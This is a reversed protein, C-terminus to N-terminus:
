VKRSIETEIESEEEASDEPERVQDEFFTLLRCVYQTRSTLVTATADPLCTALRTMTQSIVFTQDEM